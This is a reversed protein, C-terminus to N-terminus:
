KMFAAKNMESNKDCLFTLIPTETDFYDDVYLDIFVKDESAERIIDGEIDYQLIEADLFITRLMTLRMLMFAPNYKATLM